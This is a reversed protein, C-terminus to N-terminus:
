LVHFKKSIRYLCVEMTLLSLILWRHRYLVGLLPKGFQPSLSVVEFAFHFGQNSIYSSRLIMVQVDRMNQM